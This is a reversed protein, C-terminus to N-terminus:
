FLVTARFLACAEVVVIIIHVSAATSSSIRAESNIFVKFICVNALTIFIDGDVLITILTLMTDISVKLDLM